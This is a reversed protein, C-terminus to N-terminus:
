ENIEYVIIKNINEYKKQIVILHKGILTHRINGVPVLEQISKGEKTIRSSLETELPFKINNLVDGTEADILMAHTIAVCLLYKGGKLSHVIKPGCIIKKNWLKKFNINDFYFMEEKLKALIYKGDEVFFAIPADRTEGLNYTHILKGDFTYVFIKGQMGFALYQTSNYARLYEFRRRKYCWLIKKFDSSIVHIGRATCFLYKGDPMRLIERLEGINKLKAIEKKESNLIRITTTDSPRESKYFETFLDNGFYLIERGDDWNFVTDGFRNKITCIRLTAFESPHNERTIMLYQPTLDYQLNHVVTYGRLSYVSVYGSVIEKKFLNGDEDYYEIEYQTVSPEDPPPYLTFPADQRYKGDKIGKIVIYAPELEPYKEKNKKVWRNYESIEMTELIKEIQVQANLSFNIFIILILKKM